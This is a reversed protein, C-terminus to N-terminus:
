AQVEFDIGCRAIQATSQRRTDTAIRQMHREPPWKKPKFMWFPKIKGIAARAKLTASLKQRTSEPRTKGAWPGPKGRHSAALKERHEASNFKARVKKPGHRRRAAARMKEVTQPSLKRGTYKSSRERREEESMTGRGGAATPSINLNPKLVNIARQEYFLLDKPACFLLVDIELMDGYKNWADQLRNNRHRHCNLASRHGNRRYRLDKASGVYSSGGPTSIVYIGSKNPLSKM